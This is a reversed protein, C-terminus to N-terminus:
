YCSKSILPSWTTLGIRGLRTSLLIDPSSTNNESDLWNVVILYDKIEHSKSTSASRTRLLRTKLISRPTPWMTVWNIGQAATPPVDMEERDLRGLYGTLRRRDVSKFKGFLIFLLFILELSALAQIEQRKGNQYTIKSVRNRILTTVFLVSWVSTLQQQIVCM